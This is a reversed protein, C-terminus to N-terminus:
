VQSHEHCCYKNIDVFNSTDPPLVLAGEGCGSSQTHGGDLSKNHHPMSALLRHYAVCSTFIDKSILGLTGCICSPVHDLWPGSKHNHWHGGCFTGLLRVVRDYRTGLHLSVQHSRDFKDHLNPPCGLGSNLAMTQPTWPGTVIVTRFRPLYFQICVM